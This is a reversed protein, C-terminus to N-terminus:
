YEICAYLSEIHRPIQFIKYFNKPVLCSRVWLERELCFPSLFSGFCLYLHMWHTAREGRNGSAKLHGALAVLCWHMCIYSYRFGSNDNLCPKCVLGLTPIWKNLAAMYDFTFQHAEENNNNRYLTIIYKCTGEGFHLSRCWIYGDVLSRDAEKERSQLNKREAM